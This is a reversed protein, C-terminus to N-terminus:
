LQCRATQSSKLHRVVCCSSCPFCCCAVPADVPCATGGVSALLVDKRGRLSCGCIVHMQWTSALHAPWCLGSLEHTVLQMCSGPAPLTRLGPWFLGFLGSCGSHQGQMETCVAAGGGAECEQVLADVHACTKFHAVLCAPLVMATHVLIGACSALVVVTIVPRKLCM